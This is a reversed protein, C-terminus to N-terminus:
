LSHEVWNRRVPHGSAANFDLLGEVETNKYKTHLPEIGLMDLKNFAAFLSGPTTM